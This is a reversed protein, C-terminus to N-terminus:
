RGERLPARTEVGRTPDRVVELDEGSLLPVEMRGGTEGVGRRRRIQQRCAIRWQQGRSEAICTALAGDHGIPVAQLQTLSYQDILAAAIEQATPKRPHLTGDPRVARYGDSLIANHAVADGRKYAAWLNEIRQAITQTLTDKTRLYIEDM